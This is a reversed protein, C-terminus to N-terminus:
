IGKEKSRLTAYTNKLLAALKDPTSAENLGPIQSSSISSGSAVSSVSSVSCSNSPSLLVLDNPSKMDIVNKGKRRDILQESNSPTPLESPLYM